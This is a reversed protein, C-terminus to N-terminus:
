APEWTKPEYGLYVELEGYGFGGREAIRLASQDTGFKLAYKIWAKEHEEWTITGPGHIVLGSKRDKHHPNWHAEDAQVPVRQRTHPL